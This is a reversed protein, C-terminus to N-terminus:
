DHPRPGIGQSWTAGVFLRWVEFLCIDFPGMGLIVVLQHIIQGMKILCTCDTRCMMWPFHSIVQPPEVQLQNVHTQAEIRLELIWIKNRVDKAGELFRCFKKNKNAGVKNNKITVGFMELVWLVQWNDRSLKGPPFTSSFVRTTRLHRSHPTAGM